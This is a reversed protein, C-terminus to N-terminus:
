TQLFGGSVWINNSGLPRVDTESLSSSHAASSRECATPIALVRNVQSQASSVARTYVTQVGRYVEAFPAQSATLVCPTYRLTSDRM